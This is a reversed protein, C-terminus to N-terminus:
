HADIQVLHVQRRMSESRGLLYCLNRGWRQYCTERAKPHQTSTLICLLRQNRNSERTLVVIMCHLEVSVATGTFLPRAAAAALSVQMNRRAEDETFTVRGLGPPNSHVCCSSELHSLLYLVLICRGVSTPIGYDERGLEERPPYRRWSLERFLKRMNKATNKWSHSPDFPCIFQILERLNQHSRDRVCKSPRTM